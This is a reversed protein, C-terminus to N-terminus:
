KTSRKKIKMLPKTIRLALAKRPDKMAQKISDKVKKAM